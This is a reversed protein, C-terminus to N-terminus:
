ILDKKYVIFNNTSSDLKFGYKIAASMAETAGTTSPVCSGYMMRVGQNLAIEAIQDLLDWAVRERRFDPKVYIDEVYVGDKTFSYTAFGKDTEIIEKGLREKIYDAFMSM